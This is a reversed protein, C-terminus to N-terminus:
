RSYIYFDAPSGHEKGYQAAPYQNPIMAHLKWEPHLSRVDDEFKRHKVHPAVMGSHENTSYIIVYRKSANFLNKLYIYYGDDEVLHYLVDLSLTIDAKLFEAHDCFFHQDYLLFSKSHDTKFNEINRAIVTPSIDLGLYKPCNILKLQNGDGVGFEIASHIDNEVIFDNIVKAKFTALNNYSGSGSNGGNRYRTEWYQKSDFKKWYSNIRYLVHKIQM